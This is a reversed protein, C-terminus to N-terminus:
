TNLKEVRVFVQKPTMTVAKYDVSIDGMETRPGPLLRYNLLLKAIVLKIEVLAFRMGICNRPGSGFPIWFLKDVNNKNSGFFREPQFNDAEPWFQENRHISQVPIQIGSGKPIVINQYRYDESALRSVFFTVPPYIRLTEYIVADMYPLNSLLDYSIVNDNKEVATRLEQRVKEQVDLHNVLCHTIYGLATSSTEFGAELFIISNGIVEADSLFRYRRPVGTSSTVNNNPTSASTQESKEVVNASLSENSISALDNMDMKANMMEQLLDRPPQVGNQLQKKRMEVIEKSAEALYSSPSRGLSFMILQLLQKIPHM